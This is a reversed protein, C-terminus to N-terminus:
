MKLMTAKIWDLYKAVDTFVVYHSSDCRFQNQLAVSISVLGRLQWMKKSPTSTSKPFIMGGGSDGNCVSTGTVYDNRFGACYTKKTTFRSFFEPFSYICTEKSVVPMNAQTLEETVKGTEDFGWGVVTGPKNMVSNLDADESWLCIPRVYDTFVAPNVLKLLAIDNAYTRSNYEPHPFIMSIQSDQIGPNSWKKLYYKGLYVILSDPDLTSQTKRRTVCHAVTILHNRSILSAGCIYQLDAGREHYLAAHWPFEGEKTSQGFTILPKPQHEIPAVEDDASGGYNEIGRLVDRVFHIINRNSQLRQGHENYYHVQVNPNGARHHYWNGQRKYRDTVVTGCEIDNYNNNNNNQFPRSNIIHLDGAFVDDDDINTRNPFWGGGPLIEKPPQVVPMPTQEQTIVGQISSSTILQGGTIAVPTTSEGEPCVTKANLRISMLKPMTESPDYKIYFRLSYPMNSKLQHNRNKILYDKNDSTKIEGFWNGLQLSPKDFILRLWVGNLDSESILTVVGYWRDREKQPEYHFISPCPSPPYRMQAEAWCVSLVLIIFMKLAM